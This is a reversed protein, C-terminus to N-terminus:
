ASSPMRSLLGDRPSPSTYLLCPRSPNYSPPSTTRLHSLIVSMNRQAAAKKGDRMILNTVQQVVPDYRKDKESGQPLPMSPLPFKHGKKAEQISAFAPAPPQSEATYGTYSARQDETPIMAPDFTSPDLGGSTSSLDPTRRRVFTSFSRSTSPKANQASQPNKMSDKMVQPASEAAEKDAKLIKLCLGDAPLEWAVRAEGTTARPHLTVYM